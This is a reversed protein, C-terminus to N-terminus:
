AMVEASLSNPNPIAMEAFSHFNFYLSLEQPIGAELAIDQYLIMSSPGHEDAIADYSGHFPAPVTGRGGAREQELEALEEEEEELQLEAAATPESENELTEIEEEREVIEKELEAIEPTLNSYPASTGSTVLWQGSESSAQHWGALSGSEFDGNVVGAASASGAAILLALLSAALILLAALRKQPRPVPNM